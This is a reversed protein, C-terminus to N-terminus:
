GRISFDLKRRNYEAKWKVALYDPVEDLYMELEEIKVYDADSLDEKQTLAVYQRFKEDLEQSLLNAGFYGEVIGDYPLNTLGDAVLIRKELDYVVANQASNLIFPSHTTLVFQINPFLGMLIPVIKKQLEVHLHTEIEDILAIGELDYRGKAKAEMRMMLDGIVQFVASYGMAMTNFDFPERNSTHITFEFTDVNFDLTLSKDEYLQRLIEEFRQFWLEIEEAKETDNKAIAFAQTAKLNVLYSVFEYSPNDTMAYRPQFTVKSIRDPMSAQFKRTDAFCALIFAGDAYARRMEEISTCAATVRLIRKGYEDLNDESNGRFGGIRDGLFDELAILVSTKGSGNEGTLILAKRSEQSLPIEIDHLHRVREITLSTLYLGSM